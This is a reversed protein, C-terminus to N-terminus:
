VERLVDVPRYKRLRRAPFMAVIVGLLTIIVIPMLMNSMAPYTRLRPQFVTEAYAIQNMFASLDIHHNKFYFSFSIGVAGGMLGALGSMLFGELLVMRSLLRQRLGIAAMIGFERLRELLSMYMTNASVLIVAFYFILAFIFKMTGWMEIIQGIQPMFKMWPTIEVESYEASVRAAWDTADLSSTLAVSLEHLRDELVLMEQLTRRGVVAFMSDRVPDGTDVIGAVIFIEAAISGDAGQGMAVIESGPVAELLKALGSGLVIGHSSSDDIFAGEKVHRHLVTVTREEAPDIGFLEAPQTRSEHGDGCSLLAFGRVRGAAGIVKQENLLIGRLGDEPITQYIQRKDLYGEAAIKVHGHYLETAGDVMDWLMGDYIGLTLILLATALAMASMTLATRRRNRWLNRYGLKLLLM